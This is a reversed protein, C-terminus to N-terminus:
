GLTAMELVRPAPLVTPDRRAVKQLLAAARMEEFLDLNNNSAAGDTGLAVNVGAELLRAVPAIGSALKMNSEPNHAVSAGRAALLDVDEEDLHVCHAALVPVSFLGAREALRVPSCGYRGRIDEVEGETESLHIHVGVGLSAAREAVRTLYEPPCTYPAHPGLMCTLRGEGAGHFERVLAAGDELARGAGPAVGVLGRSLSARIGADLVARAAEEMHFYMDAFATTGSRIMEACALLTGWYVDEPELRAEVPWIRTQLWEMLPLDDAYGRFLTMAAHTHANVLGPLAVLGRGEIVRDPAFGEPASGEPGVHVIAGDRVAVEGPDYITGRPDGTLVTAGRLLLSGM